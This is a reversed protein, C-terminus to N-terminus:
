KKFLKLIGRYYAYIVSLVPVYFMSIAGSGSCFQSSFAENVKWRDYYVVINITLAFVLSVLLSFAHMRTFPASYIRFGTVTSILSILASFEVAFILVFGIVVHGWANYLGRLITLDEEQKDGILKKDDSM